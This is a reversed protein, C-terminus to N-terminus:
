SSLPPPAPRVLVVTAPAREMLSEVQARMGNRLGGAAAELVLVDFPEADLAELVGESFSRARLLRTDFVPAGAAAKEGADLVACADAVARDLSAELPQAHPVVLVSALVVEGDRGALAAAHRLAVAPCHHETAVLVRPGTV